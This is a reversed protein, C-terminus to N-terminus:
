LVEAASVTYQKGDVTYHQDPIHQSNYIADNDYHQTSFGDNHGGTADGDEDYTPRADLDMGNFAAKLGM